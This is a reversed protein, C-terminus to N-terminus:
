GAALPRCRIRGSDLTRGDTTVFAYRASGPKLALRLAGWDSDNGFVVREDDRRIAYHSHGGAGSVFQVIGDQPKLRQMDHDHGSLVIAAHGRLADWFPAVDDTDGHKGASFRPRHWFAIRCTGRRRLEGRLWRLQASGAGTGDESNLSLLQWGGASFSYHYPVHVHKVGRWYPDYGHAHEDWDHNGPTPATIAALRGYVPAYHHAFDAATGDKYVDGLYLFRDPRAAEILRELAKAAAGGDAGDGVAWVLAHGTKVSPVFAGGPDGAHAPRTSPAGVAVVLAVALLIQRHRM